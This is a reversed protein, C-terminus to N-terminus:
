FNAFGQQWQDPFAAKALRIIKKRESDNIGYKLLKKDIEEIKNTYEDIQKHIADIDEANENANAEQDIKYLHYQLSWMSRKHESLNHREICMNIADLGYEIMLLQLKYQKDEM